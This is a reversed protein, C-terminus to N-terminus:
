AKRDNLRFRRSHVFKVAQDPRRSNGETNKAHAYSHPHTRLVQEGGEDTAKWHSPLWFGRGYHLPQVRNNSVTDTPAKRHSSETEQIAIDLLKSPRHMHFVQM